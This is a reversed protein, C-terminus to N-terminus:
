WPLIADYLSEDARDAAFTEIVDDHEVLLVQNSDEAGVEVVVLLVAWVLSQLTRHRRAPRNVRWGASSDDGLWSETAKM